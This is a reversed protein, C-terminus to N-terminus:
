WSRRVWRTSPRLRAARPKSASTCLALWRAPTTGHGTGSQRGARGQRARFRVRGRDGRVWGRFVPFAVPENGDARRVATVFIPGSLRTRGYRDEFEPGVRGIKWGAIEDPFLGIAAEQHLYGTALDAPILGPFAPLSQAALRAQVFDRAITDTLIGREAGKNKAAAMSQGPVASKPSAANHRSSVPTMKLRRAGFGCIAVPASQPRRGSLVFPISATLLLNATPRAKAPVRTM